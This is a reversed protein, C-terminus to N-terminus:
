GDIEILGRDALGRCLSIVDREIAARPTDFEAALRDVAAGVTDTAELAHLMQAATPNLGHYTGSHLNLVVTESSFDRHVVHEPVRVRAGLIAEAAM